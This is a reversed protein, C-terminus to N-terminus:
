DTAEVYQEFCDNLSPSFDYYASDTEHWDDNEGDTVAKHCNDAIEKYAVELTAEKLKASDPESYCDM